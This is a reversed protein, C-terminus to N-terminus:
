REDDNNKEGGGHSSGEIGFVGGVELDVLRGDGWKFATVRKLFVQCVTRTSLVELVTVNQEIGISSRLAILARQDSPKEIQCKLSVDPSAGPSLRTPPVHTCGVLSGYM